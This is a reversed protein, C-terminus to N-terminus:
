DRPGLVSRCESWASKKKNSPSPKPSTEAVNHRVPIFDLTALSARRSPPEPASGGQADRKLLGKSSPADMAVCPLMWM